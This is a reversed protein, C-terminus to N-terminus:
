RQDVIQVRSANFGGNSIKVGQGEVSANATGWGIIGLLSFGTTEVKAKTEIIGDGASHEVAENRAASLAGERTAPSGFLFYLPDSFLATYANVVRAVEATGPLSSGSAQEVGVAYGPVVLATSQGSFRKGSADSHFKLGLIQFTSIEASGKTREALSLHANIDRIRPDIAGGQKTASTTSCASLTCLAALGAIAPIHHKNLMPHFSHIKM